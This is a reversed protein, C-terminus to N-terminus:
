PLGSGLASEKLKYELQTAFRISIFKSGLDINSELNCIVKLVLRFFAISVLSLYLVSFSDGLFYVGALDLLEFTPDLAVGFFFEALLCSAVLHAMTSLERM